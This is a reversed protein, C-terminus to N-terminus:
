DKVTITAWEGRGKWGPMEIYAQVQWVGAINFDGAVLDYKITDSTNASAAFEKFGGGPMKARIKLVTASSIDVGCDLTLQTGIDDKYIVSM